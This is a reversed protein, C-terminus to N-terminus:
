QVGRLFDDLNMWRIGRGFLIGGETCNFTKFPAVRALKLFSERYWWYTPDTFWKQKLHPNHVDIYYDAYNKGFLESLEQYYQTHNLPTKPPYGFDMGSLAVAKSRLVAGAVVWALTGVNGGTVLCPAKNLEFLRRTLSNPEDYDDYIPNFWFIPSKAELARQTVAPAVSTSFIMSM